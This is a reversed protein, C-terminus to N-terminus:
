FSLFAISDILGQSVKYHKLKWAEVRQYLVRQNFISYFYLVM